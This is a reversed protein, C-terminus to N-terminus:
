AQKRVKERPRFPGAGNSDEFQVPFFSEEDIPELQDFTARGKGKRDTSREERPDNVVAEPRGM